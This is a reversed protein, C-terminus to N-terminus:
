HLGATAYLRPQDASRPAQAFALAQENSAACSGTIVIAGVGAASARSLVADIDAAFSDHTLNAGM